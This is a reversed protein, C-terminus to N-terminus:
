GAGTVTVLGGPRPPFMEGLWVRRKRTSGRQQHRPRASRQREVATVILHRVPDDLRLAVQRPDLDTEVLPQEPQLDLTEAAVGVPGAVPYRLLQSELMAGARDLRED